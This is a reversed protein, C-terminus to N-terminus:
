QLKKVENLMLIKLALKDADSVEQEWQKRYRSLNGNNVSIYRSAQYLPVRYLKCLYAYAARASIVDKNKVWGGQKKKMMFLSPTIDYHRIAVKGAAIMIKRENM